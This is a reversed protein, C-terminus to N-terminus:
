RSVFHLKKPMTQEKKETALSTTSMDTIQIKRVSRQVREVGGQVGCLQNRLQSPHFPSGDSEPPCSTRRRRLLTDEQSILGLRFEGGSSLNMAHATTQTCRLGPWPSRGWTGASMPSSSRRSHLLSGFAFLRHGAPLSRGLIVLRTPGMHLSPSIASQQSCQAVVTQFRSIEMWM